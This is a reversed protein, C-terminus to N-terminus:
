KLAELTLQERHEREIFTSIVGRREINGLLYLIEISPYYDLKEKMKTYINVAGTKIIDDLTTINLMILLQTMEDDILAINMINEHRDVQNGQDDKLTGRDEKM